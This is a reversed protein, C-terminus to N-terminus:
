TFRIFIINTKKISFFLCKAESYSRPFGDLVYGRYLCANQKLIRKFGECLLEKSFPEKLHTKKYEEIDERLWDNSPLNAMQRVVDSISIHLINYKKALRNKTILLPTSKPFPQKGLILLDM